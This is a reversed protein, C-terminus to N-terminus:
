NQKDAMFIDADIDDNTYGVPVIVCIDHIARETRKYEKPFKNCSSDCVKYEVVARRAM